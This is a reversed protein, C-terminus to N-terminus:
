EAREYANVAADFVALNSGIVARSGRGALHARILELPLLGTRKALLVAAVLAVLNRDVPKAISAIPHREVTAPTEIPGLDEDALVTAGPALCALRPAM